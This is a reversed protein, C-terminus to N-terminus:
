SQYTREFFQSDKAKLSPADFILIHDALVESTIKLTMWYRDVLGAEVLKQIIRDEDSQSIGVVRQIKERLSPNSLDITGLASLIELYSIYRDGYKVEDVVDRIIENLYRTLVDDRNLETILEGRRVLRAAIGAILPEGKALRVIIHRADEDNIQYPSTQLLQDIDLNKLAEVEIEKVRYGAPIGLERTVSDKFVSRTALVLTVKGALEPNVLVESLQHLLKFRHADDIVIVHNCNRNLKMLDYEISEARIRVYRLSVGSSILKPLELLLRTKGIGGAGHIIIADTPESLFIKIQTLLEDRGMVIECYGALKEAAAVALQSFEGHKLLASLKSSKFTEQVIQRVIEADAGTFTYVLNRDGTIFIADTVDGGVAIAREGTALIIQRSELANGLIELDAPTYTKEALRKLIAKFQNLDAM